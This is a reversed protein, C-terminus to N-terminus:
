LVRVALVPCPALQIVRHTTSGFVAIDLANRGEVGMVILDAESEVALQVIDQYPRGMRVTADVRLWDLTEAPIAQILKEQIEETVDRIETSKPVDELVHVIRLEADFELALSLAYELSRISPASFDSCLLIRELRMPDDSTEPTVFHHAPKRVVMVPCRSKRLVKETVSGLLWHDVGRRGHTGMVILDTAHREAESLIADIPRGERVIIEVPLGGSPHAEALAKLKVKAKAALPSRLGSWKEMEAFEDEPSILELPEIVHEIALEASYHLALSCAYDLSLNSLESFDLPCLIRKIPLM